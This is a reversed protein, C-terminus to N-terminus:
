DHGAGVAAGDEERPSQVLFDSKVHMIFIISYWMVPGLICM